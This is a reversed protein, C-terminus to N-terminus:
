SFKENISNKAEEKLGKVMMLSNKRNSNRNRSKQLKYGFDILQQYTMRAQLASLSLRKEEDKQLHFNGRHDKDNEITVYEKGKKLVWPEEQYNKDEKKYDWPVLGKSKNRSSLNSGKIQKM